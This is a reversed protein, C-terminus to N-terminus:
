KHPPLHSLARSLGEKIKRAPSLAQDHLKELEHHLHTQLAASNADLWAAFAIARDQYGQLHQVFSEEIRKQEAATVARSGLIKKFIDVRLQLFREEAHILKMMIATIEGPDDTEEGAIEASLNSLDTVMTKPGGAFIAGTDSNIAAFQAPDTVTSMDHIPRLDPTAKDVQTLLIGGGVRTQIEESYGHQRLIMVALEASLQEDSKTGDTYVTYEDYGIKITIDQAIGPTIGVIADHIASIFLGVQLDTRTIEMRAEKSIDEDRFYGALQWITRVVVGFTHKDDHYFLRSTSAPDGYREYISDLIAAALQMDADDLEHEIGPHHERLYDPLKESYIPRPEYQNPHAEYAHTM